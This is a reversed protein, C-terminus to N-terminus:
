IRTTVSTALPTTDVEDTRNDFYEFQLDIYARDPDIGGTSSKFKIARDGVIVYGIQLKQIITDQLDILDEPESMHYEDVTTFCTLTYYATKEVTTRCADTQSVRILGIEFSPRTFDKPCNNIYVMYDPYLEVLIRNIATLIDNQKIM